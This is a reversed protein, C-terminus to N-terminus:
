YFMHSLSFPVQLGAVIQDSWHQYSPKQEMGKMYIDLM